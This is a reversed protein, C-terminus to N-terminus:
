YKIAIRIIVPVDNVKGKRALNMPTDTIIVNDITMGWPMFPFIRTAWPPPTHDRHNASILLRDQPVKRLCELDNRSPCGAVKIAFWEAFKYSDVLERFFYPSHTSPSSLIARSYLPYSPESVLHAAISMAGASQGFITVKTKDGGFAEINAQIWEMAMRQDLIGWNGTTGSEKLSAESAFFGFAGLRYAPVVIIVNERAALETGNYHGIRGGTFGGGFIDMMVPLKEGAPIKSPRFVNLYLCDESTGEKGTYCDPKPETFEKIGSWSGSFAKPAKFRLENIPPEAFRIGLYQDVEGFKGNLLPRVTLVKSGKGKSGNSFTVSAAHTIAIAGLSLAFSILM